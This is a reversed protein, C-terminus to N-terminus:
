YEREPLWPSFHFIPEFCSALLLTALLLTLWAHPICCRVPHKPGPRLDAQVLIDPLRFLPLIGRLPASYLTLSSHPFLLLIGHLFFLLLIGQLQACPLRFHFLVGHLPALSVHGARGPRWTETVRVLQYPCLRIHLEDAAPSRSYEDNLMLGTARGLTAPQMSTAQVM